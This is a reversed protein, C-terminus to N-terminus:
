SRASQRGPSATQWPPRPLPAGLLRRQCTPLFDCAHLRFFSYVSPQIIPVLLFGPLAMTEYDNLSVGGM